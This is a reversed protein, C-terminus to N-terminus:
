LLLELGLVPQYPHTNSQGVSELVFISDKFERYDPRAVLTSLADRLSRFSRLFLPFFTRSWRTNQWQTSVCGEKLEATGLLGLGGLCSLLLLRRVM